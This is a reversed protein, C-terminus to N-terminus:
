LAAPVFKVRVKRNPKTATPAPVMFPRLIHDACSLTILGFGGKPSFQTPDFRLYDGNRLCRITADVVALDAEEDTLYPLQKQLLRIMDQRMRKSVVARCFEEKPAELWEEADIIMTMLDIPLSTDTAMGNVKKHTGHADLSLAGFGAVSCAKGKSLM